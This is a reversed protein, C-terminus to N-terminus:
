YLWEIIPIDDILYKRKIVDVIIRVVVQKTACRFCDIDNLIDKIAFQPSWNNSCLITECCFCEIGSYKKLAKRFDPNFLYNFKVPKKNINIKPPKFPHNDSLYFDYYNNDKKHKFSIIYQYTSNKNSKIIIDAEDCISDNILMELERKIRKKVCPISIISLQQEM